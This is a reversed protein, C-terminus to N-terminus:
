ILAKVSDCTEAISKTPFLKFVTQYILKVGTVYRQM